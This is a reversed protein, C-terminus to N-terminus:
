LPVRASEGWRCIMEATFILHIQTSRITVNHHHNCELHPPMRIMICILDKAAIHMRIVQQPELGPGEEWRHHSQFHETDSDMPQIRVEPSLSFTALNTITLHLALIRFHQLVATNKFDKHSLSVNTVLRFPSARPELDRNHMPHRPIM